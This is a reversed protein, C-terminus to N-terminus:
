KASNVKAPNILRFKPSKEFNEKHDKVTIFAERKAMTEIRDSINLDSAINLLEYNIDDIMDDSGLKYTKTINEKLTKDYVDPPSEYINRSKDAFM